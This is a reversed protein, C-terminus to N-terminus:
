EACVNGLYPPHVVVEFECGFTFFSCLVAMCLDPFRCSVHLSDSDILSANDFASM